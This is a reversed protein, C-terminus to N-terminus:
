CIIVPKSVPKPLIRYAFSSTIPALPDQTSVCHSVDDGLLLQRGSTGLSFWRTSLGWTRNGSAAVSSSCSVMTQEFSMLANLYLFMLNILPIVMHMFTRQQCRWVGPSGERFHRTGAQAKHPKHWYVPLTELWAGYIFCVSLIQAETEDSSRWLLRNGQERLKISSALQPALPRRETYSANETIPDGSSILWLCLLFM